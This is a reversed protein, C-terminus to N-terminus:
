VYFEVVAGVGNEPIFLGIESKPFYNYYYDHRLGALAATGIWLWLGGSLTACFLWTGVVPLRTSAFTRLSRRIPANRFFFSFSKTLLFAGVSVYLTSTWFSAGLHFYFDALIGFVAAIFFSLLPSYQVPKKDRRGQKKIM